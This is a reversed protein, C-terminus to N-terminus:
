TAGLQELDERLQVALRRKYGQYWEAVPDLNWDALLETWSVQSWDEVVLFPVEGLLRTWYDTLGDVPSVADAVPIAGAELAEWLRFSDPSVAGSPAPAVKAKAMCRIYEAPDMGQTFGATRHVRSDRLGELSNFCEHRRAHTDQGSLFCNLNKTPPEAPLLKVHPTYGVGFLREGPYERGHRPTQRWVKMNPHTVVGFLSEEDSTVMLLVWSYRYLARSIEAEHGAWYRAPILLVCGDVQNPYGMYWQMDLGHPWLRGDLLDEVMTQDWQNVPALRGVAIM